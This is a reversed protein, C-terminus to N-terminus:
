GHIAEKHIDLAAEKLAESLTPHAHFQMGLDRATGMFSMATVAEAIMDSARPGVIHVGLLRDTEAHALVKVFGETEDMARARGNGLFNFKGSKYSVSNEKLQEETMGVSAAEPWTYVVGPLYDYEVVAAKGQMREVCVVGEESAKHALMPGPVLDGIAYIGACTTQYNEDVQIRGTQDCVIGVEEAGLGALLPRRGIAVLLRDCDLEGSELGSGYQIMAKNGLRRLGTVRTNLRFEVGQKKLARQLYDAVQRDCSPVIGQLAEMVTVRAGLRRWVSGLELGIYGGGAVILHDPVQDFALAERASVVLEGDFPIGPLPLPESGTALLVKPARLLQPVEVPQQDGNPFNLHFAQEVAVQQLGTEDLGRLSASGSLLTIKNKKFLYAVGDTLKKVLEDKRALMATLNLRPPDIEIGHLAFKDRALAFHESSDLLAKSPICGENLCVGGLTARKEVVAVKMGLQSARIAAVYGGPGSGIVILDFQESM